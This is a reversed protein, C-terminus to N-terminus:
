EGDRQMLNEFAQIEVLYWPIQKEFYLREPETKM